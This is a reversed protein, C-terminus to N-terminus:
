DYDILVSYYYVFVLKVVDNCDVNEFYYFCVLFCLKYYKKCKYFFLYCFGLLGIYYM